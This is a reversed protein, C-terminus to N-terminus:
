LIRPRKFFAFKPDKESPEFTASLTIRNGREVGLPATGWALWGGQIAKVTMVTRTGFDSEQERVSIVEVELKFRGTPAPEAAAREAAIREAKAKREPIQAFLKRVFNAQADSISGYRILKGVIDRITNEEYGDGESHGREYLAWADPLGLDDLIGRAKLKGARAERAAQVSDMIRRFAQENGMECKDACDRGMRIYTNTKAHYFLATYIAQANGCVMCNGGHAHHSYTGGTQEMHARLREREIRLAEIAGLDGDLKMCEIAVFSYDAPDIASPRHVDTRQM